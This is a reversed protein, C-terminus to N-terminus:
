YHKGGESHGKRRPNREVRLACNELLTNLFYSEERLTDKQAQAEKRGWRVKQSTYKSLYKGGESHGNRRPNREERLADKKLFTNLFYTKEWLIDIEVQTAKRGLRM